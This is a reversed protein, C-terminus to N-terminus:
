KREYPTIKRRKSTDKTGGAEMNATMGAQTIRRRAVARINAQRMIAVGVVRAKLHPIDVGSDMGSIITRTTHQRHRHRYATGLGPRGLRLRTGRRVRIPHTTRARSGTATARSGEDQALATISLSTDVAATILDELRHAVM